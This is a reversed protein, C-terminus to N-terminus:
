FSLKGSIQVIRQTSATSTVVGFGTSANVSTAPNGLVPHNLANFAQMQLSFGLTDHIPFTRQVSTDFDTYFPGIFPYRSTTGYTGIPPTVFACPNFWQTMSKVNGAPPTCTPNGAIAGSQFPNGVQNAREYTGANGTYAIDGSATIQYAQGSRATLIGNWQWGGIVYDVLRNGTSFQKGTGFPLDYVFNGVFMQPINFGAPGHSTKPNYPDQPVGGEVGFFGDDGENLTKSWTYSVMYSLGNTFSRQLSTQLSNYTGNGSGHDWSKQPVAYPYPAGGVGATVRANFSAYSCPSGCPTGTNYYGGIDLRHSASGVYNVSLIDHFPLQKEVGFNFQESYPNRWLPDVMYNVNSSGFPNAAPLNGLNAAFPNQASVYIGGAAPTNTNNIQLTGTDPWSGQYNQPMQILASWNDWLMGIGGRVSFGNNVRYAFGFRPGFNMKSGHLIRGGKAVVVDAPLTASPLCPAHGRVSCLPPLQQVIYTGNNFDPDGTEISGQL